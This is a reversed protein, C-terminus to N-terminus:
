LRSFALLRRHCEENRCTYRYTTQGRFEVSVLSRDLERSQCVPCRLETIIFMHNNCQRCVAEKDYHKDPRPKELHEFEYLGVPCDIREAYNACIDKLM